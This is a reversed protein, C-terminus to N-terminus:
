SAMLPVVTPEVSLLLSLFSCPSNAFVLSFKQLHQLGKMFFVWGVQQPVQKTCPLVKSCVQWDVEVWIPSDKDGHENDEEV